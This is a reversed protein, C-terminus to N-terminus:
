FLEIQKATDSVGQMAAASELASGGAFVSLKRFLAREDDTLLDYSWGVADRM